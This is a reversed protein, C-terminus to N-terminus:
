AHESISKLFKTRLATVRLVLHSFQKFYRSRCIGAIFRTLSFRVEVQDFSKGIEEADRCVIQKPQCIIRSAPVTNALGTLTEM